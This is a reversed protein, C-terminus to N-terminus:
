SKGKFKGAGVAGLLSSEFLVQSVVVVASGTFSAAFVVPVALSATVLLESVGSVVALSATALVVPVGLLVPSAITVVVPCGVLFHILLRGVVQLMVLSCWKITSFLAGAQSLATRITTKM